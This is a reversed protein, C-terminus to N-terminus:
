GGSAAWYNPTMFRDWVKLLLSGRHPLLSGSYPSCHGRSAGVTSGLFDAGQGCDIVFRLQKIFLYMTVGRSRVAAARYYGGPTILDWFGAVAEIFDVPGEYLFELGGGNFVEQDLFHHDGL